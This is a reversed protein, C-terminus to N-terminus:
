NTKYITWYPYSPSIEAVLGKNKYQVLDYVEFKESCSLWEVFDTEFLQKFQEKFYELSDQACEDQTLIQQM